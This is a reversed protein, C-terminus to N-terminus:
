NVAGEYVYGSPTGKVTTREMHRIGSNSDFDGVALHMTCRNDWMVIDDKQWRHRYVFQARTAHRNLYDLLPQSEEPTLGVFQRVKEGIYLTKRGTEPHVRVAPQAVPRQRKLFEAREASVDVFKRKRMHIGHLSEVIKKMGDSLTDYALYMNAFMTDGGVGPLEVCRLLSGMAPVLSHCLDSHWVQGTYRSESPSGDTKPRTTVITLEPYKPDTDPSRDNDDLEGFRRSFAIHQERTLQQGRFLLIGHDLFAQHIAAFDDARMEQRLDVDRVEAGLAHSLRRIEM